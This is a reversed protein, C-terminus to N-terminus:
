RFDKKTAQYYFNLGYDRFFHMFFLIFDQINALIVCPWDTVHVMDGELGKL